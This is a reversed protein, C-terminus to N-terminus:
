TEWRSRSLPWKRRVCTQNEQGGVRVQDIASVVASAHAARLFTSLSGAYRFIPGVASLHGETRCRPARKLSCCEETCPVRLKSMKWTAVAFTDPASSNREKSERWLRNRRSDTESDTRLLDHPDSNRFASSVDVQRFGPCGLLRSSRLLKLGPRSVHM